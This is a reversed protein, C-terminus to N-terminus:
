ILGAWNNKKRNYEFKFNKARPNPLSFGLCKSTKFALSGITLGGVGALVGLVADYM